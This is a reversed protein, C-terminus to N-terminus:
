AGQPYAPPYFPPYLGEPAAPPPTSTLGRRLIRPNRVYSRYVSRRTPKALAPM